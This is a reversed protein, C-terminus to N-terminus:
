AGNRKEEMELQIRLFTDGIEESLTTMIKLTIIRDINPRLNLLAVSLQLLSIATSHAPDTLGFNSPGALLVDDQDRLGLKFSVGKPNAHVNHSAMRYYPRLHELGVAQEIDSFNPRDKALSEAAWGYSGAFSSGFRNCLDDRM